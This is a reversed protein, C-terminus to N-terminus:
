SKAIRVFVLSVTGATQGDLVGVFAATGLPTTGGVMVSQTGQYIAINFSTTVRDAGVVPDIEFRFADKEAKARQGPATELTPWKVIKAKGQGALSAVQLLFAKSDIKAPLAGLIAAADKTQMEYGQVAVQLKAVNAAPGQAAVSTLWASCLLLILSLSKM